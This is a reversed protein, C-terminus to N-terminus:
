SSLVPRSHLLDVTAAIDEATETPNDVIVDYSPTMMFKHFGHIVGVAAKISDVSDPRRFFKLTRPSGSQIGMRVRFMGAAILLRIKRSDVNRSILGTVAFPLGIRDQWKAAFEELVSFPISMFCDDQFTVASLHPVKARAHDVEGLLYDVSRYRLRAYGHDNKM